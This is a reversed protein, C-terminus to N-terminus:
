QNLKWTGNVKIYVQKAQKWTGNVKIWLDGQKWTNNVKIYIKAQASQWVAYLIVAASPTYSDGPDYDQITASSDTSFGLLTYGQRTCELATPLTVASFSGTSSTWQQHVTESSTPTYSAGNNCRKTGSSTETYWGNATYTITATSNESAKTTSGGNANFTVTRTATGNSHTASPTTISGKSTSDTWQATLTTVNNENFNTAGGAWVTSTASSKWGAFSYSTTDTATKTTPSVSGGNADFTVTYGDATTSAKSIADAIQLNIGYTKTQATPTSSGGNAAYSITYTKADWVATLTANKYIDTALDSAFTGDAYIYRENATGGSTGDGKYQNFDYGTRSPKSISTVQTTCINNTYFASLGYTYWLSTTGGSGPSPNLTLQIKKPAQFCEVYKNTNAFTFTLNDSIDTIQCACVEWSVATSNDGNIANIAVHGFTSFSGSAGCHVEYVYQYWDGTGGQGTLWTSYGDTGIANRYDQIYHTKPIKAWIFCRFIHSAKSTTSLVLGGCGPSATGAAKSITIKYGVSSSGYGKSPVTNDQSRTHTVTGNSSNNYVAVGGSGSEFVSDSSTIGTLSGNTHYGAFINGTPPTPTGLNKTTTENQTFTSNSTTGNYTGGYPYYTLTTSALTTYTYTSSTTTGGANTATFYFNYSTGTSLGTVQKSTSTGLSTSSYSSDSSKKYYLTYNTIAANTDGTASVSVTIASTTRATMSMSLSSPKNCPTTFSGTASSSTTAASGNDNETVKYYYTKNPQLSSMTFKATTGTGASTGSSGYSTSTGYSCSHSSYGVGNGSYGVSYTMTTTYTSGSRSHSFSRSGISPATHRTWVTGSRSGTLGVVDRRTVTWSYNVNQALGTVTGNQLTSTSTSGNGTFSWSYSSNHTTTGGLTGGTGTYFGGDVLDYLGYASDSNRRCPVFQRIIYSNNIIELYYIRANAYNSATSRGLIGMNTTSTNSRTTSMTTSHGDISVTGGEADIEFTHIDNDICTFLSTWNGSSNQYAWAWSENGNIYFGMTLADSDKNGVLYQQTTSAHYSFAGTIRTKSTPKFNTNIYLNASGSVYDVQTYGSVNMRPVVLQTGQGGTADYSIAGVSGSSVSTWSVDPGVYADATITTDGTKNSMSNGMDPFRVRVAISGSGLIYIPNSLSWSKFSSQVPFDVYGSLSVKQQYGTTAKNGKIGIYVTKASQNYTRSGSTKRGSLQTIKIGGAFTEYTIRVICYQSSFNIDKTAM